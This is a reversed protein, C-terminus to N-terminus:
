RAVLQEDVVALDHADPGAVLAAAAVALLEAVELRARVHDRLRGDEALAGLPVQRAGRDAVEVEAGTVRLLPLEAHLLDPLDRLREVAHDVRHAPRQPEARLEALEAAREDVRHALV